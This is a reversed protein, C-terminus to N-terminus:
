IRQEQGESITYFTPPFYKCKEHNLGSFGVTQQPHSGGTNEMQKHYAGLISDIFILPAVCWFNIRRDAIGEYLIYPWFYVNWVATAKTVMKDMWLRLQVITHTILYSFLFMGKLSLQLSVFFIIFSVDTAKQVTKLSNKGDELNAWFSSVNKSLMM